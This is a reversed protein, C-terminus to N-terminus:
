EAKHSNQSINAALTKAAEKLKLRDSEGLPLLGKMTLYGDPGSAADSALEAVFEALGPVKGLHANKVYVYLTRAVKYQGSEIAAETPLVGEIANAKVRSANNELFSYGFIGLAQPNNTLKQVILNNDEGAEIFSGDERLASCAAKQTTEDKAIKKVEPVQECGANMVLEVFADRTGSSPPPGYLSIPTDPLASDIERWRHYFNPVLKGDKPVSRALALYLARRTLSFNPSTRANALVIGDYGLMLETAETVGHARCLEIESDKIRRSANSIDPTDEGVGSCFVKFGGGTGTAEVIPTRFKGARGFQEAAAASFPFVTASGVVRLQERADAFAPLIVALCAVSYFWRNM